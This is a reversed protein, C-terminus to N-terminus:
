ARTGCLSPAKVRSVRTRKWFFPTVVGLALGIWGLDRLHFARAAPVPIPPTHDGAIMMLWKSPSKAGAPNMAWLIVDHPNGRPNEFAISGGAPKWEWIATLLRHPKEDPAAGVPLPAGADFRTRKEFRIPSLAGLERSTGALKVRLVHRLAEAAAEESGLMPNEGYDATIELHAAGNATTLKALFFEAAHALARPPALTVGGAALILIFSACRM